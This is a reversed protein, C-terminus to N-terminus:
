ILDKKQKINMFQATEHALKLDSLGFPTPETVLIMYDVKKTAEIVPCTTGPPADIIVLDRNRERATARVAKILPPSKAEGINM